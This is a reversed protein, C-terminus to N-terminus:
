RGSEELRSGAAALTAEFAPAGEPKTEPGLDKLLRVGEPHVGLLLRRGDIGVLVLNAGRSLVARDLVVLPRKGAAIRTKWHLLAWAAAGLILLGVAMRLAAGLLSPAVEPVALADAPSM